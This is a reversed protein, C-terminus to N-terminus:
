NLLIIQLFIHRLIPKNPTINNAKVTLKGVGIKAFLLM